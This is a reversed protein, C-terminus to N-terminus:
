NDLKIVKKFDKWIREEFDANREGEEKSKNFVDILENVIKEEDFEIKVRGLSKRIIEKEVDEVNGEIEIEGLEKVRLKETNKLVIYANKENLKRIFEKLKVESVKGQELEGRVRLLVIKDNFDKNEIENRIKDNIENSSKGEIRLSLVEKLQIPVYRLELSENVIYFGGNKLEELEKFNNPFLPGPFVIKGYGEKVTDFIYHVHGGAYYNFNKPLSMYSQAEVKELEKPKFEELATHFMFIKFGNLNELNERNLKSYDEKELGGRRGLLGTIKVGTKDEFIKLNGNEDMKNVNIILGANELVDLMTKGSPSFDHSGPIVYIEINHDRVKDLIKAVDKILDINPLATDFLDGSILIFAIHEEICKNAARRFVEISLKNLKEDRWGGIHCDAM